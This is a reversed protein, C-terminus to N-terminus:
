PASRSGYAPKSEPSPPPTRASESAQAAPSPAPTLHRNQRSQRVVVGVRQPIPRPIVRPRRRHPQRPHMRALRRPRVNMQPCTPPDSRRRSRPPPASSATRTAPAPTRATPPSRPTRCRTSTRTCRRIDRPPARALRQRLLDVRRKTNSRNNPPTPPPRSPASGPSESGPGPSCGPNRTASSACENFACSPTWSRPLSSSYIVLTRSISRRTFAPADAALWAPVAAADNCAGLPYERCTRPAGAIQHRVHQHQRELRVHRPHADNIHAFSPLLRLKQRSRPAPPADRNTAGRRAHRVLLRLSCCILSNWIVCSAYKRSRSCDTFSPSPVSSSLEIITKPPPILSPFRCLWSSRGTSAPPRRRRSKASLRADPTGPRSASPSSTNTAATAPQPASPPAPRYYPAAPATSTPPGSGM